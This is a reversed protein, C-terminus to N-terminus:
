AKVFVMVDRKFWWFENCESAKKRIMMSTPKDFVFGRNEMQSIIYETPQENFHGTGGQNPIAWSLFVGKKATNSLNDLFNGEFEKPIHEGVELSYVMDVAPVDKQLQGLDLTQCLGGSTKVVVENGDYCHVQEVGKRKLYLAYGGMGAGFDAVSNYGRRTMEQHLAEKICPCATEEAKSSDPNGWYQKSEEATWIGTKPDPEKNKEAKSAEAVALAKAPPTGQLLVSEDDIMTEKESDGVVPCHSCFATLTAMLLITTIL